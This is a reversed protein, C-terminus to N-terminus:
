IYVKLGKPIMVLINMNVPLIRIGESATIFSCMSDNFKFLSNGWQAELPSGM